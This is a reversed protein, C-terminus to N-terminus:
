QQSWEILNWLVEGYPNEWIKNPGVIQNLLNQHEWQEYTDAPSSSITDVPEIISPLHLINNTPKATSSEQSQFEIKDSICIRYDFEAKFYKKWFLKQLFILSHSTQFFQKNQM